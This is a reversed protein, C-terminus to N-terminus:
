GGTHAAGEVPKGRTLPSSGSMQYCGPGRRENEGRSRPHAPACILAGVTSSTKGAHAPILREIIAAGRDDALKGRTLPSSGLFGVIGAFAADNEGRSRPHAWSRRWRPPMSRTKGAHAPILGVRVRRRRRRTHKGRTLPSSGTACLDQIALTGNEGRSRPHARIRRAASQASPTKGAHAPILGSVDDNRLSIEPKGRTLPSSGVTVAGDDIADANEGRSRPHAGGTQTRGDHGRTKGAHAPILGGGVRRVLRRRQKGRTLPSSGQLHDLLSEGLRNEGRSRPHARRSWPPCALRWTKGAHAPILGRAPLRRAQHCPKGRTLPSSGVSCVATFHLVPNEGRSRPHARSSRRCVPVTGTKGAHAPILWPRKIM